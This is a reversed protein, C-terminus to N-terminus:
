YTESKSDVFVDLFNGAPWRREDDTVMDVCDFLNKKFEEINESEPLRGSFGSIVVDEPAIWGPGGRFATNADHHVNVDPVLAPM